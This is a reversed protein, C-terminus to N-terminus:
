SRRGTLEHSFCMWVPEILHLPAFYRPGAPELRRDVGDSEDRREYGEDGEGPVVPDRKWRPRRREGDDAELVVEGGDVVEEHRRQQQERPVEDDRKCLVRPHGPPVPTLEPPVSRRDDPEAPEPDDEDTSEEAREDHAGGFLAHEDAVLRRHEERDVGRVHRGADTLQVVAATVPRECVREAGRIPTFVDECPDDVPHSDADLDREDRRRDHRRDPDGDARYTRVGAPPDVLNQHPEDVDDERKRRQQHEQEDEVDVAGAEPHEDEDERKEGPTTGCPVDAALRERDGFLREDVRAPHTACRGCLDDPSM